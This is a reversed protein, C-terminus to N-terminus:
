TKTDEGKKKRWKKVGFRRSCDITEVKRGKREEGFGIRGIFLWVVVIGDCGSM